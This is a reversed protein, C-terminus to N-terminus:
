IQVQRFDKFQPYSIGLTKKFESPSIASYRGSWTKHLVCSFQMAVTDIDNVSYVNSTSDSLVELMFKVLYSNSLLCQLGANMFCTNGLNYLGSIGPQGTTDSVFLHFPCWLWSKNCLWVWPMVSLPQLMALMKEILNCTVRNYVINHWILSVYVIYITYKIHILMVMGM